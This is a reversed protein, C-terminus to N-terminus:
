TKNKNKWPRLPHRGKKTDAFPARSPAFLQAVPTEITTGFLKAVNEAVM